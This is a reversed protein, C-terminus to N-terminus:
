QVASTVLEGCDTLMESLPTASNLQVPTALPKTQSALPTSTFSSPTSVSMDCTIETPADVMDVKLIFTVEVSLAVFMM